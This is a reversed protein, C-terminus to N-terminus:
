QQPGLEFGNMQDRQPHPLTGGIPQRSRAMMNGTQLLIFKSEQFNIDDPVLIEVGKLACAVEFESKQLLNKVKAKANKQLAAIKSDFDAEAAPNQIKNM